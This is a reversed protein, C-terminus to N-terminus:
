NELIRLQGSKLFLRKTGLIWQSEDIEFALMIAHVFERPSYNDVMEKPLLGRFRHNLEKLEIRNPFGHHMITVLEVTGCNEVQELVNKTDFVGPKKVQNPFGHHM